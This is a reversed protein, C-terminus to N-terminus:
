VCISGSELVRRARAVVMLGSILQGVPSTIFAVTVEPTYPRAALAPAALAILLASAMFRSYIPM